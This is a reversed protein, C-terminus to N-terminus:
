IHELHSDINQHNDLEYSDEWWLICQVLAIIVMICLSSFILKSFIVILSSLIPYMTKLTM